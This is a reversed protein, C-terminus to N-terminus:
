RSGGQRPRGDGGPGRRSGLLARAREAVHECTFGFEALVRTGPASAGFTDISVTAEAYRDWGFSSGAEVALAPVGPPLVGARYAPDQAEFWEWCPLSVVRARVGTSALQEAAGICVHVESGTGILVLDPPGTEAGGPEDVLVYGGREVGASAREATQALVPIEQRTLVLGVPAEGDVALRWAQACENADAPRLVALGPMARLSALHEIPQHTPGDEGLGISDHTWSYIVHARSMAALRVAPRMYDSFCFFTGGVPLVGGHHAMGTMAAAMAHERIGFYLQRGGPHEPSQREEDDIRMGTNGTLDAAGAVIGPIFDVTANLCANVAKRTAVMTGPDFRPLKQEWGALGRGSWAADWAARDGEWRELRAEWAARLEQGRAITGRYLELVEDPVWFAEDPPLGLIAKTEEIEEPGFPDGHAKASDTLHPSPWGIHSRLMILSPKDEVAMARRLAREIAGTDNAVEGVDDVDWGYGRFREAVDDSYALETPGDISIHNNDYVYVLRGLGLHGALSAAEHSIGEELCGDGCVVFTHHDVLEPGFRTRLVREAIGMGVGNGFGQGLPGTTVEVGPAHHKEPHGPTRSGWQRFAKLDDLTLGYGCLFLMSYLLVSAHGNSLVFRDRDPWAPDSPDHRMVRTYLVHALPALAMATGSHGSRARAPADMALGRIVNIGLQELDAGPRADPTPAPRADPTPAPPMRGLMGLVSSCTDNGNCTGGFQSRVRPMTQVSLDSGPRVAHRTCACSRKALGAPTIWPPNTAAQQSEAIPAEATVNARPLGTRTAFASIFTLKRRGTWAPARSVQSASTTEPPARMANTSAVSRPSSPTARARAVEV